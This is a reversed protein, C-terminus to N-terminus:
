TVANYLFILELCGYIYEIVLLVGKNV